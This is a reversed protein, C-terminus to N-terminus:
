LEREWSRNKPVKKIDLVLRLSLLGLVLGIGMAGLGDLRLDGFVQYSILALIGVLAASMGMLDLVFTNKTMIFTSNQFEHFIKKLSITKRRIRQVSLVFAYGNTIVSIILASYAVVINKIEQPHLFRQLGFYFSLSSAILLM